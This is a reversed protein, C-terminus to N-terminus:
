YVKNGGKLWQGWDKDFAHVNETKGNENYVPFGRNVWEFISGYLNYVNKYGLNELKEGIKESRYGVSCYVVITDDLSINELIEKQMKNYGIHKANQIHSTEFEKRERADLIVVQDLETLEEVTVYPVSGSLLNDLMNQFELDQSKQAFASNVLLSFLLFISIRKM